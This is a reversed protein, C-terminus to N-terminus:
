VCLLSILRDKKISNCRQCLPQINEIDDSGGKSLPLIHDATLRINTRFCFACSQNFQILKDNWEEFTHSGGNAKKSAKRRRNLFLKREYGGKYFPSLKGRKGWMPNLVGKKSKAINPCKRGKHPAPVGKKFETAKSYHKGIRSLSKKPFRLEKKM